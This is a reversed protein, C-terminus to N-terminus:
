VCQFKITKVKKPGRRILDKNQRRHVSRKKDKKIKLLAEKVTESAQLNQSIFKMERDLKSIKSSNKSKQNGKM